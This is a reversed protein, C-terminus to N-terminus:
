KEIEFSLYRALNKAKKEAVGEIRLLASIDMFPGKNTRSQLIKDAMKPGVGKVLMLQDRTAVNIPLKGFYFPWFQAKVIPSIESEKVTCSELTICDGSTM